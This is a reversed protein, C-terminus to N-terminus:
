RSTHLGLRDTGCMTGALLTLWCSPEAVPVDSGSCIHFDTSKPTRLSARAALLGLYEHQKETNATPSHIRTNDLGVHLATQVLEHFERRNLYVVM